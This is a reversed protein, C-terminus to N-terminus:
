VNQDLIIYQLLLFTAVILHLINSTVALFRFESANHKDFNTLEILTTWQASGMRKNELLIPQTSFLRQQVNIVRPTAPPAIDVTVAALFM